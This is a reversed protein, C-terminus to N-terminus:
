LTRYQATHALGDLPAGTPLNASTVPPDSFPRHCLPSGQQRRPSHPPFVPLQQLTDARHLLSQVTPQLEHLNLPHLAELARPDPIASRVLVTLASCLASTTEPGPTLRRTDLAAIDQWNLTGTPQELLATQLHQAGRDRVLAKKLITGNQTTFHHCSSQIAV